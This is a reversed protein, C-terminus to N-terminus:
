NPHLTVCDCVPLILQEWEKLLGSVFNRWNNEGVIKGPVLIGELERLYGEPLRFLM